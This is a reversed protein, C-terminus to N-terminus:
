PMIVVEWCTGEPAGYGRSIYDGCPPYGFYLLDNYSIGCHPEYLSSPQGYYNESGIGQAGTLCTTLYDPNPGEGDGDNSLAEVNDIKLNYYSSRNDKIGLVFALMAIIVIAICKM